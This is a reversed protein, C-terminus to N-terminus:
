KGCASKRDNECVMVLAVASYRCKSLEEILKQRTMTKNTKQVSKLLESIKDM